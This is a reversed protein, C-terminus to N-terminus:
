GVVQGALGPRERGRGLQCRRRPWGVLGRGHKPEWPEAAVAAGMLIQHRRKAAVDRLVLMESLGAGTPSLKEMPVDRQAAQATVTARADHANEATLATVTM